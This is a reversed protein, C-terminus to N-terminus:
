MEFPKLLQLVKANHLAIRQRLQDVKPQVLVNWEINRFLNSSKNYRENAAILEECENLTANYDGIIQYLSRPDWRAVADGPGEQRLRRTAGNVVDTLTKLNNGLGGLDEFFEKYNSAPILDAHYHM